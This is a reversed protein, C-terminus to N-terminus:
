MLRMILVPPQLELATALAGVTTGETIQLGNEPTDPDSPTEATAESIDEPTADPSEQADAFEDALESEILAVTDADLTSMGNKVRVGHEQLLAILEKNTLGHQKALDYVRTRATGSDRNEDRKSRNARRSQTKGRDTENRQTQRKETQSKRM